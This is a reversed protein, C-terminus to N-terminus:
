LILWWFTMLLRIEPPRKECSNRLKKCVFIDEAAAAGAEMFAVGDFLLMFPFTFLGRSAVLALEGPPPCSGWCAKCFKCRIRCDCNAFTFGIWKCCANCLCWCCCITSAPLFCSSCISCCSWTGILPTEIVGIQRQKKCKWQSLEYTSMDRYM